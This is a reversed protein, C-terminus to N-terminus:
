PHPADHLDDVDPPQQRDVGNGTALELWVAKGGPQPEIGWRDSLEAVLRLGWGGEGPDSRIRPMQRNYDDVALCVNGCRLCVSLELDTHAHRVVNTVLESV